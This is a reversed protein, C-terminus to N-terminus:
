PYSHHMLAHIQTQLWRHHGRPHWAGPPLQVEDRHSYNCLHSASSTLEAVHNVSGVHIAPGPNGPCNGQPDRRATHAGLTGEIKEFKHYGLLSICFFAATRKGESDEETEQKAHLLNPDLWLRRSPGLLQAEPPCNPASPRLPM